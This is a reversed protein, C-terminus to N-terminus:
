GILPSDLLLGTDGFVGLVKIVCTKLGKEIVDAEPKILGICPCLWFHVTLSLRFIDVYV